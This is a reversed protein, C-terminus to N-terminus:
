PAGEQVSPVDPMAFPAGSDLVMLIQPTAFGILLATLAFVWPVLEMRWPLKGWAPEDTDQTNGPTFVAALVKFMYAAALLGGGIIPIVLWWQGSAFSAQLLLWKASFGASPPLGIISVAAVGFAAWSLAIGPPAHDFDGIRDHGVYRLINGAALFMAAKALAHSLIFLVVGNWATVAAATLAVPFVLFLYGLQAVTSYAVLLKLRVQRLAKWSGWLIALTGLLGLGLGLTDTTIPFVDLWLRALLYFSAKVVLASLLASAPAPAAAHAPPLWFHLPFLATKMLLGTIMLGMAVWVAVAPKVVQNLAAIDLTGYSAYLLGVGLLYTLSGLLSVLLYRMAGTVADRGGALAVLAVAALGLIELTVYLNFLDGSLFLANLATWLLLWLPWFSRASPSGAPFYRTGYLTIGVGVLATTVLMIVSLGDAHLAIGLPAAWGGLAYRLGGADVVQVVLGAVSVATALAALLAIVAAYRPWLFCLIGAILPTFVAWIIWSGALVADM